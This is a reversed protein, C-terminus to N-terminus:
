TLRGSPTEPWAATARRATACLDVGLEALYQSLSAREELTRLAMWLSSELAAAQEDLLSEPSWAHGIRCRYRPLPDTQVKFLSGGCAPCGYGAPDEFAENDATVPAIDSM